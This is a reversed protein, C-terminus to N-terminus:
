EKLSFTARALALARYIGATHEAMASVAHHTRVHKMGAAALRQAEARDDLLTEIGAALAEAEPKECVWGTDGHRLYDTVPSACAVVAVGAGMAHLVDDDFATDRSPRVFIDASKVTDTLDGGPHALTVASSLRHRRIFKRLAGERRGQGLLFLLFDRKRRRILCVAELLAEVGADRELPSFSLITPSRQPQAFCAVTKAALVGPRIMDVRDRSAGLQDTLVSALPESLAIYRGVREMPVNGIAECDALSTVGLILDADFSEAVAAAVEYSGHSMAHVVTPPRHALAELLQGIRRKALPWTPREHLVTQVPGLTLREVRPDCSLLRTRVAQDVLGVLLHRLVRRFRDFADHDVCLVADVSLAGESNETDAM